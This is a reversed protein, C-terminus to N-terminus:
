AVEGHGTATHRKAGLVEGQQTHQEYVEGGGHGGLPSPALPPKIIIIIIIIIIIVAISAAAHAYM